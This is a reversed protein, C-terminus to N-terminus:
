AICNKFEKMRAPNGRLKLKRTILARFLSVEENLMKVWTESDATVKLDAEGVHGEHVEIRGDSIGITAAVNEKGPFDFHLTLNLGKAREPVFALKVGLLFSAISVPRITNRAYRIEKAPNKKATEEAGTDAIVYVPEEKDILPKMITELYEKKAAKYEEIVEEGAPCVALCYSCRYQHGLTLAQWKMLTEADNFLSRYAKVNKAGALGEIWDQFGGIMEHYNHTVCAMFSFEGDKPIAGVPCAVACLRCNICPNGELPQDYRDMEADILMTNLHVNGGLRPHIVNRHLGMHGLGAEVAVLKHSIDWIRGPWRTMDMPFGPPATVGRVGLANLRSIIRKSIAGLDGYVARYEEDVVPLSASRIADRNTQKIISILTKAKPYARLADQREEALEERDIEVFGAAHAGEELCIKRVSEASLGGGETRGSLSPESATARNATEEKEAIHSKTTNSTM